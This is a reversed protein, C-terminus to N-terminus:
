RKRRKPKKRPSKKGKAHKGTRVGPGREPQTLPLLADAPERAERNMRAMEEISPFDGDLDSVTAENGKSLPAPEALEDPPSDIYNAPLAQHYLQHIIATSVRKGLRVFAARKASKLTWRSQKIGIAKPSENRLL